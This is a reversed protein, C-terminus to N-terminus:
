SLLKEKAKVHGKKAAKEYWERAQQSDPGVGLGQEYMTGIDYMADAVYHPSGAAITLWQFAAEDNIEVGIGMLFRHGIEYTALSHGKAAAERMLVFAMDFNQKVGYGNDYLLALFYIVHYSQRSAQKLYLHIQEQEETSLIHEKFYDLLTNIATIDGSSINRLLQPLDQIM